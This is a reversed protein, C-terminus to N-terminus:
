PAPLKIGPLVQGRQRLTLGTVIGQSDRQFEIVAGVAANEVRDAGIVEAAIAAQGTGQTMLRGSREFIRLSFQPTLRYEGAWDQWAPNQATLPQGYGKRVAELVGGGQRWAIRNVVGDEIIPTARASITSAPYLDGRDDLLLELAPQGAPQAILRGGEDRLQVSLGALSFEGVLAKRLSEPMAVPRRPKPVPLKSDMLSRALAGLDNIAGLSTDVMVIVARQTSPELAMLAAFGGTDGEHLVLDQGNFRGVFWNMGFGHALPAQTSRLRPALPTDMLGLHAQAYRVMDDLRARVAGVGAANPAAAFTWNPTVEGTSLHGPALRVGAPQRAIFAGDMKLPKFLRESLAREFDGDLDGNFDSQYARAVAVSVVMMAFNSYVVQGGITGQLRTAALGNLLDKETMDAYPNGASRPNFNPPLRPLGSSHTLLDRVLIKREGQSPVQTGPPLHKEIPDDLTWKGAAILDAVLFATMTKSISGIEFADDLTPGGDKRPAACALARQVGAPEVIAAVACAGSRDGDFRAKLRASLAADTQALAPTLLSLLSLTAFAAAACRKLIEARSMTAVAGVTLLPPRNGIIPAQGGICPGLATHGHGTAAANDTLPAVLLPLLRAICNSPTLCSSSVCHM